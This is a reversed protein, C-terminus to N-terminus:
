RCVFFVTLFVLMMTGEIWFSCYMDNRKPHAYSVGFMTVLTSLLYGWFLPQDTGLRWWVLFLFLMLLVEALVVSRFWGITSPITRVGKKADNVLDRVDFPLTIAIIFIFREVGLLWSKPETLQQLGYHDVAPLVVTMGAWVAGIMFIKWLGIERIRIFETKRRVIPAAYAVAVLTLPVMFYWIAGNLYNVSGAAMLLGIVLTGKMLKENDICWHHRESDTGMKRLEKLGSIMNLNYIVLTSGVTFIFLPANWWNGTFEYWSLMGIAAACLAVWWSGYVIYEFISKVKQSPLSAM